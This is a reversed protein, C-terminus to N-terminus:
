VQPTLAEGFGSAAWYFDEATDIDRVVGPDQVPVAEVALVHRRIVAKAGDGGRLGLLEPFYHRGFIVPHGRRGGCVPIVIREPGSHELLRRLTGSEVFPMDGLCVALADPNCGRHLLSELGAAISVGLGVPWAPARVTRLPLSALMPAVLTDRARVVVVLEADAFKVLAAQVQRLSALLMPEGDIPALRKDGGFRRSFGAAAVIAAYQM